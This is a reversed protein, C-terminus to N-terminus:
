KKAEHRIFTETSAIVQLEYVPLGAKLAQNLINKSGPSKGNWILLLADGEKVMEGNRIPGAAKGHTEWDAPFGRYEVRREWCGCLKKAASDVGGSEGSLVVDPWLEWHHAAKSILRAAQSEPITRTGAIILKMGTDKDAQRTRITQIAM